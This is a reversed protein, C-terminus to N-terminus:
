DTSQRFFEFVLRGVLVDGERNFHQDSHTTPYLKGGERVYSRLAPLLDLYPIGHEAAFAEIHKQPFSVDYSVGNRDTGRLERAYIQEAFPVAVVFLEVGNQKCTDHIRKLCELSVEKAREAVDPYETM